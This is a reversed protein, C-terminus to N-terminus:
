FSSFSALLMWFACLSVVLFEGFVSVFFCLFSELLGCLLLLSSAWVCLFVLFEGVFVGGGGGFFFPSDGLLRPPNPLLREAGARRPSSGRM